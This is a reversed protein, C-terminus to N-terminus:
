QTEGVEEGPLPTAEPVPFLRVARQEEQEVARMKALFDPFAAAKVQLGDLTLTRAVMLKSPSKDVTFAYDLGDFQLETTDPGYDLTWAGTGDLTIRVRARLRQRMVLDQTREGSGLQNTLGEAPLNLRAGALDGRHIVFGPVRGRFSMRFAEGATELGPFESADLDLGPVLGSLMSALAQQREEPSLQRLSERVSSGEAGGMTFAGEVLASDDRQLRYDLAIDVAWDGKDTFAPLTTLEYDQRDLLMAEAGLSEVPLKAFPLGRQSLLLWTEQGDQTRPLQLLPVTFRNATPFPDAPDPDLRAATATTVAPLFPVDAIRLLAMMLGTPNGRKQTWVDTVDGAQDFALIERDVAHFIAEARALSDTPLDLEALFDRLEAEIDAPVASQWQFWHKWHAAVRDLAIDGGYDVWPLAERESPMAAEPQLRASDARTFIHVQGGEWPLIQHTGDFAHEVFGGPLGDPVFVALRSLAFSQDRAQFFWGGLMPALGPTGASARDYAMDIRDGPDLDPMVWSDQVLHPERLSGDQKYVTALLTDGVRPIEHLQETGRRNRALDLDHVRYRFSGDPWLYIMGSDLVKAISSGDDKVTTAFAAELDPGFTQFFRDSADEQGLWSLLKRAPFAGPDRALVQELSDRAAQEQGQQLQLQASAYLAGTRGPARAAELALAALVAQQDGRRRDLRMQLERNRFGEPEEARVTTLLKAAERQAAPGGETLFQILSSAGGSGHAEALRLYHEEQDRDKAERALDALQEFAQPAQPFDETLALLTPKALTGSPDFAHEVQATTLEVLLNHPFEERLAAVLLAAEERRDEELLDQAHRLLVPLCRVGIEELRAEVALLRQRQVVQPLHFADTLADHRALLWASEQAVSMGTPTPFSLALDPRHRLRAMHVALIRSWPDDGQPMPPQLALGPAGATEPLPPLSTQDEWEESNLIQGQRDLLRAAFRLDDGSQAQLILLNWGPRVDVVIRRLSESDTLGTRVGDLVETHNWWVRLSEDADIELTALGTRAAVMTAVFVSGQGSKVRQDPRLYFQNAARELPLWSLALGNDPDQLTGLFLEPEGTTAAFPVPHGLPGVPGLVRFHRLWDVYLDDRFPPRAQDGFRSRRLERLFLDELGRAVAGDHAGELLAALRAPPLGEACQGDLEALRAVATAALPSNLDQELATLWDRRVQDFDGQILGPHGSLLQPSLHDSTPIQQPLLLLTLSLLSIM